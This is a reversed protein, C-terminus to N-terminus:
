RENKSRRYLEASKNFCYLSLTEKIDDNLAMFQVRMYKDTLEIVTANLRYDSHNITFCLKFHEQNFVSLNIPTDLDIYCGGASINKIKGTTFREISCKINCDIRVDDRQQILNVKRPMNIYLIGDEFSKISSHVKLLKEKYLLEICCSTGKKFSQDNAVSVCLQKEDIYFILVKKVENLGTITLTAKKGTLYSYNLTKASIEELKM